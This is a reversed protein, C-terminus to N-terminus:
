KVHHWQKKGKESAKKYLDSIGDEMEGVADLYDDLDFNPSNKKMSDKVAQKWESFTKNKKSDERIEKLSRYLDSVFYELKEYMIPTPDVYDPLIKKLGEFLEQEFEKIGTSTDMFGYESFSSLNRLNKLRKKIINLNRKM